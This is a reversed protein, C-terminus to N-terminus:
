AAHLWGRLSILAGVLALGALANPGRKQLRITALALLLAAAVCGLAALSGGNRALERFPLGGLKGPPAHASFVLAGAAAVAAVGARAWAARTRALSEGVVALLVLVTVTWAVVDAFFARQWVGESLYAAGAMLLFSLVALLAATLRM